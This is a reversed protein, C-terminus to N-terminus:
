MGFLRGIRLSDRDFAPSNEIQQKSLDIAIYEEAKNVDVLAYPSLLLQRGTLWNGTRRGSV